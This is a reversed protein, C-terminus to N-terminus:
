SYMCEYVRVIIKFLYIFTYIYPLIIIYQRYIVIFEQFLYHYYAISYYQLSTFPLWEKIVYSNTSTDNRM